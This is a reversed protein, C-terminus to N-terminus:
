VPEGLQHGVGLRPAHDADADDAWAGALEDGLGRQGDFGGGEDFIDRGRDVRVGGQGLREHLRGLVKEALAAATGSDIRTATASELTVASTYAGGSGPRARVVTIRAWPAPRGWVLANMTAKASPRARRPHWATVNLKGYVSCRRRSGSRAGIRSAQKRSTTPATWARGSSRARRSTIPPFDIPPRM